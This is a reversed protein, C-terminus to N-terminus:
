RGAHQLRPPTIGTDREFRRAVKSFSFSFLPISRRLEARQRFHVSLQEGLPTDRYYKLDDKM